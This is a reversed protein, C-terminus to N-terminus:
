LPVLDLRTPCLPTPLGSSPLQDTAKTLMLKLYFTTDLRLYESKFDFM